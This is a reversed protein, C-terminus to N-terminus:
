AGCIEDDVFRAIFRFNAMVHLVAEGIQDTTAHQLVFQPDQCAIFQLAAPDPFVNGPDHVPTYQHLLDCFQRFFRFESDYLFFNALYVGPNVGMPIGTTQCYVQQGFRVYSNRIILRVLQQADVLLFACLCGKDAVKGLHDNWMGLGQHPQPNPFGFRQRVGPQGSRIYEAHQDKHAYVVLWGLHDVEMDDQQLHAPPTPALSEPQGAEFRRWATLICALLSMELDDLGIMVYLQEVDFASSGHGADFDEQSMCTHSFAAVMRVLQETQGIFWPKHDDHQMGARELAEDPMADMLGRWQAVLAPEVARLLYTCWHAASTLGSDTSAALYRMAWPTKHAKGIAKAVPLKAMSIRLAAESLTAYLYPALERAATALQQAAMAISNHDADDATSPVPVYNRATHLNHQVAEVYYKLCVVNFASSLKDLTVVVFLDRMRKLRALGSDDMVPGAPATHGSKYACTYERGDVLEDVVTHMRQLVASTFTGLTVRHERYAYCASNRWRQM